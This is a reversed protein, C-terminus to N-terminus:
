IPEECHIFLSIHQNVDVKLKQRVDRFGSRSGVVTYIGPRLKLQKEVFTGLRGVRYILVETAGDSRLSVEVETSATTILRDLSVIQAKLEPGPNSISRATKLTQGAETLPGNDQLRQPQSLVRKIERDLEARQRVFERNQGAFGIDPDIQRAKKCVQLAKQWQEAATLQNFKKELTSLQAETVATALQTEADRLVPNAPKVAAATRLSRRAQKFNSKHLATFFDNMALQFKRERLKTEVRALTEAAPIFEPDLRTAQQLPPRAEALLDKKELERGQHYLLVVQDINGARQLGRRADERDPEMSMALKFKEAASASDQKELAAYGQKIATSFMTPKAALLAQLRESAQEYVQQAGAFDRNAMAKDGRSALVTIQTYETGGWLNINETEIGTQLRLWQDLQNEAALRAKATLSELAAPLPKLTATAPAEALITKQPISPKSEKAPLLWFVLVVADFFLFLAFFIILM